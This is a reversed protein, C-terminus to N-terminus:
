NKVLRVVAQKGEAEISLLYVGVSEYIRLGLLQSNSYNETLVVKGSLDTVTLKVNEYKKDMEINFNGDAPNPYVLPAVDFANEIIGVGTSVIISYDEVEGDFGTDCPGPNTNYRASVRMTTKGAPANLPVTISLPSLTTPGNATGSATGLTYEEGADSFDYNQNWDIWVKSYITFVGDTNLQVSLDYSSGADVVTSDSATYDTYPQTKGSANLITNFDVLTVSTAFDMNGFSPCYEIDRVTYMFPYTETTDGNSGVAIVKFYVKTGVAQSPIATNSVWTSDITNTMAIVSGLVPTNASWEVYVSTLVSDYSVVSTVFQDVGILPKSETPPDTINTTLIAPFDNRGDLAYEWLSRGWTAARLTNSGRMVELELVSVNPLGPSYLAWVTDAMAKKYVGIETGLYIISADTHDIVVSRVPLNNINYSINQWNAGGDTTLFVKENDNQHTGYTVVLVDDDNPDFAIDTISSGPLTGQIDTFTNGGDVSKEIDQGKSVVMINSNNEAISAYSITGSFGPTGLQNWTSAFDTSKYVNEGLHYVTMQDNPDYFLPAIWGGTQGAPTVGNQTAGGDKTKRRGGYQLSGIMWDDNLPHIIGEMGDAGYFEVWGNETNISTGNDQSGVITRYHNSQSVGLNYYERISQGEYLTWTIGNDKSKCIFGDTNIWFVGNICRGGRIDAHVYNGHTSYNANGQSWVTTKNFTLGEDTSMNVDINGFLMYDTNVDSVAFAGFNNLGPTSVLNFNLGNDTSKWIGDSTGLFVCNPCAPSTSLKISA